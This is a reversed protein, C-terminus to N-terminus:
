GGKKKSLFKMIINDCKYSASLNPNFIDNELLKQNHKTLKDNEEKIYYFWDGYQIKFYTFEDIEKMYKLIEDKKENIKTKINFGNLAM